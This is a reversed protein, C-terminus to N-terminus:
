PDYQKLWPPLKRREAMIERVVSRDAVQGLTSDNIAQGEDRARRVSLAVLRDLILGDDTFYRAASDYTRAAEISTVKLYRQMIPITEARNQKIFRAGRLVARIFKM